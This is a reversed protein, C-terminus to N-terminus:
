LAAVKKKDRQGEGRTRDIRDSEKPKIHEGRHHGAVDNQEPECNSLARERVRQARDDREDGVSGAYHGASPDYAGNWDLRV